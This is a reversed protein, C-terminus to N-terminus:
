RSPSAALCSLGESVVALAVAVAAPRDPAEVTVISIIQEATHASMVRAARASSAQEAAMAFEAPGRLRGGDRDVAITIDYRSPPETMGPVIPGTESM